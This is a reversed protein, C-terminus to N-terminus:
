RAHFEILQSEQTGSPKIRQEEEADPVPHAKAHQLFLNQTANVRGRKSRERNEKKVAIFIDRNPFKLQAKPTLRM